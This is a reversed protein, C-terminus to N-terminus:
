CMLRGTVHLRMPATCSQEVSSTVLGVQRSAWCRAYLGSQCSWLRPDLVQLMPLAHASSCHWTSYKMNLAHSICAALVDATVAAYCQPMGGTVGRVIYGLTEAVGLVVYPQWKIDLGGLSSMRSAAPAGDWSSNLTAEQSVAHMCVRKCATPWLPELVSLAALTIYACKLAKSCSSLSHGQCTCM